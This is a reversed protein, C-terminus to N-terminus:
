SSQVVVSIFCFFCGFIFFCFFVFLRYLFLLVSVNSTDKVSYKLCHSIGEKQDEELAIKKGSEGSYSILKNMTKRLGEEGWRYEMHSEYDVDVSLQEADKGNENGGAPYYLEGGSSCVYADFDVPKIGNATLFSVAEKASLATSLIFGSTRGGSEGRASNIIEKIISAGETLPEGDKGYADVGIVFIAKRKRLWVARTASLSMAREPNFRQEGSSNSDAKNTEAQNAEAKNSNHGKMKDLIKRIHETLTPDNNDDGCGNQVMKELDAPGSLSGGGSKEGDISLRLSLGQTDQLSDNFSQSEENEDAMDDNQWQPHRKRCLAVRSLYIKCHEPWSYRHINKLGNRRCDTWMNRDSVLKYLAAAIANSDHPDM